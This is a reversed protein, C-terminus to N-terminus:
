RRVRVKVTMSCGSGTLNTAATLVGVSSPEIAAPHRRCWCLLQLVTCTLQCDQCQVCGFVHLCCHLPRDHSTRVNSDQMVLAANPHAPANGDRGILLLQREAQLTTWCECQREVVLLEHLCIVHVKLEQARPHVCCTPEAATSEGLLGLLLHSQMNAVTALRQAQATSDPRQLLAGAADSWRDNVRHTSSCGDSPQGHTHPLRQNGCAAHVPSHVQPVVRLACTLQGLGKRLLGVTNGDVRRAQLYFGSSILHLMCIDALQDWCTKSDSFTTCCTSAVPQFCPRSGRTRQM